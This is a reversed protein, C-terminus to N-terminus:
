IVDIIKVHYVGNNITINAGAVESTQRIFVDLTDGAEINFMCTTHLPIVGGFASSAPMIGDICQAGNVGSTVEASADNGLGGVTVSQISEVEIRVTRDGTYVISGTEYSFNKPPLSGFLTATTPSVWVNQAVTGLDESNVVLSIYGKYTASADEEQLERIIRKWGDEMSGM